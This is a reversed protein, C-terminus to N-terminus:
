GGPVAETGAARFWSQLRADDPRESDARTLFGVADDYRAQDLCLVGLLHLADFHRADNAILARCAVEAEAYDGARYHRVAMEMSAPRPAIRNGSADLLFRHSYGNLV